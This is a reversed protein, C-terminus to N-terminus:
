HWSGRKLARLLFVKSSAFMRCFWFASFVYSMIRLDFTGQHNHNTRLNKWIVRGDDAHKLPVWQLPYNGNPSLTTVKTTMCSMNVQDSYVIIATIEGLHSTIWFHHLAVLSMSVGSRGKRTMKTLFLLDFRILRYESYRHDSNRNELWKIEKLHCVRLMCWVWTDNWM